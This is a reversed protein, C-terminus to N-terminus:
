KIPLTITYLINNYYNNEYKKQLKLVDIFYNDTFHLNDDDTEIIEPYVMILLCTLRKRIPLYVRNGEILPKKMLLQYRPDTRPIRGIYIIEGCKRIVINEDYSFIHKIIDIPLRKWCDKM